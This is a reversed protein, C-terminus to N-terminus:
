NLFVEERTIKPDADRNRFANFAFSAILNDETREELSLLVTSDRDSIDYISVQVDANSSFTTDVPKMEFRLSIKDVTPDWIPKPTTTATPNSVVYFQDAVILLDNVGDSNVDSVIAQPMITFSLSWIVSLDSRLVGLELNETDSAIIELSGDGNIDNIANVYNYGRRSKILNLNYDLIRLYGDSCGVIIEDKGDMNIDAIAVSNWWSDSPGTYTELITGDIGMKYIEAIGPYHFPEHGHFVILEKLGDRDLDIIRAFAGGHSHTDHIQKTLIEDGMENIVVLYVSSDDTYTNNGKGRGWAGNHVTWWWSTIEMLGDNNLDGLCDGLVYGAAYYWVEAGTNYNFLVAGRPNGVYNTGLGALIEKDGDKDVDFVAVAWMLGDLGVTRTLTKLLNGYGDYVYINGTTDSTKRSVFIEPVGDGTVDELIDLRLWGTGYYSDVGPITRTWLGEGNGSIVKLNDGSVKVVELKGDGNVDGTLVMLNKGEHPSSWFTEFPVDPTKYSTSLPYFCTRALDCGYFRWGESLPPRKYIVTFTNNSTDWATNVGDTAIVKILCQSSEKVNSTDWTISTQNIEFAIPVWTEGNDLSYAVSYLLKDGDADSGEWYISYTKGVELIEGGNPFIVSVAPSNESITRSGITNNYSDWIEIFRTGQKFPVYFTFPEFEIEQEIFTGNLEFLFRFTANFPCTLLIEKNQNLLVISYNGVGTLINPSKGSLIYLTEAINTSGNAYLLFSLSIVEDLPDETLQSACKLNLSQQTSTVTLSDFLNRRHFIPVPSIVWDEEYRKKDIWVPLNYWKWNDFGPPPINRYSMFTRSIAEYVRESPSYKEAFYVAPGADHPHWLFFTHGIEHAILENQFQLESNLVFIPIQDVPFTLKMMGPACGAWSKINLGNNDFIIILRDYGFNNALHELYLANSYLWMTLLIDNGIYEQPPAAFALPTHIDWSVKSEEVPYTSILFKLQSQLIASNPLYWSQGIDPFYVPVVLFRLSQSGVVSIILSQVNNVSNSEPIKGDYDINCTLIDNGTNSWKLKKIEENWKEPYAPKSPGCPVYITNEGFDVPTGNRFPGQCIYTKGFDYIIKINVWVRGKFTSTVNVRIVTKKDKILGRTNEVVQIPEISKLILDGGKSIKKVNGNSVETYYLFNIDKGIASPYNQDKALIEVTGGNKPVKKINGGIIQYNQIIHETFYVNEEDVQLTYCHNTTTAIVTVSGGDKPVRKIYSGEYEAFYVYNEDIAIYYPATLGSALTIITGGSKPVKKISGTGTGSSYDSFYVYNVDIAIGRPGSLGSALTIVLGGTKPVKKVTGGSQDTFYVYQDDIDLSYPWGIGSAMVTVAGGNKSVRKIYGQDPYQVDIFYVYNDDVALGRPGVLGSAITIVSGGYLSVKKLQLTGFESFYVFNSDVAVFSPQNLGGAM